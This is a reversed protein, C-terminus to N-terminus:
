IYCRAQKMQPILPSKLCCNILDKWNFDEYIDLKKISALNCFRKEVKKNLLGDILENFLDYSENYFPYNFPNNNISVQYINPIIFPNISFLNLISNINLQNRQDNANNPNTNDKVNDSGTKSEKEM